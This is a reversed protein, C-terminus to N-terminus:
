RTEISIKRPRVADARPLTVELIGDRYVANVKDVDVTDPLTMSRNFSDWGRERRHYSGKPEFQKREAKITLVDGAVSIDLKEKDIGAVEARVHFTDGDDYVNVPPMNTAVQDGSWNELARSMQEQMRLFESVPNRTGWRYFAM